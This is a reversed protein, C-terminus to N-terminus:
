TENLFEVLSKITIAHFAVRESGDSEVIIPLATCDGYGKDYVKVYKKVPDQFRSSVYINKATEGHHIRFHGM